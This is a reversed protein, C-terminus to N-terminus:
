AFSFLKTGSNMAYVVDGTTKRWSAEGTMTFETHDKKEQQQSGTWLINNVTLTKDTQGGLAVVPATLVGYTSGLLAAALHSGASVSADKFTWSVGLTGWGAFDVVESLDNDGFGEVLDGSLSLSVASTHKPAIATGPNFTVANPYGLRVPHVLTPAVQAALSTLADALTKTGDLFSVKGGVSLQGDASSSLSLNMSNLVLWATASPLTYKRYTALGSEKSYFITDAKTAALIANVAIVDACSANFDVSLGARSLEEVGLAGDSRGKISSFKGSFGLSALGAVDVANIKLGQVLFTRNNAM